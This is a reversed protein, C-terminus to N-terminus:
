RWLFELIINGILNRVLRINGFKWIKFILLIIDNQLKNISRGDYLWTNKLYLCHFSRWFQRLLDGPREILYHFLLSSVKLRFQQFSRFTLWRPQCPCLEIPSQRQRKTTTTVTHVDARRGDNVAWGSTCQAINDRTLSTPSAILRDVFSLTVERAPMVVTNLVTRNRLLTDELSLLLCSIVSCFHYAASSQELDTCCRSSFSPRQLNLTPPVPSCVTRVSSASRLRRRCRSEAPHHLEPWTNWRTAVANPWSNCSM